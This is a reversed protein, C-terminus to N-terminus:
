IRQAKIYDTVTYQLLFHVTLLFWSLLPCCELLWGHGEPRVTFLYDPVCQWFSVTVCSFFFPVFFNIYIALRDKKRQSVFIVCEFRQMLFYGNTSMVASHRPHMFFYGTVCSTHFFYPYGRLMSIFLWRTVNKHRGLGLIFHWMNWSLCWFYGTICPM